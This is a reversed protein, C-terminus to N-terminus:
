RAKAGENGAPDALSYARLTSGDGVLLLDVVVNAEQANGGPWQLIRRGSDGWIFLYGTRVVADREYGLAAIVQKDTAWARGHCLIPPMFLNMEGLGPIRYSALVKGDGLARRELAREGLVVVSNETAAMGGQFEDSRSSYGPRNGNWLSLGDAARVAKVPRDAILLAGNRAVLDRYGPALRSEWVKSGTRLDLAVGLLWPRWEIGEIEQEQDDVDGEDIFFYVRSSDIAPRSRPSAGVSRTWRVSGTKAAVGITRQRGALSCTAAGSEGVAGFWCGRACPCRRTWLLRGSDAALARITVSDNAFVRGDSATLDPMLDTPLQRRWQERGSRLDLAVIDREDNAFLTEKFVALPARHKLSAKPATWRLAPLALSQLPPLTPEAVDMAQADVKGDQGSKPEVGGKSAVCALCACM